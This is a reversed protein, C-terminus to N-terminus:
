VKQKLLGHREVEKQLSIRAQAEANCTADVVGM